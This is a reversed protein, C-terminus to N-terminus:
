GTPPRAARLLAPTADVGTAITEAAWRAALLTYGASAVLSFVPLGPISGLFPRDGQPVAVTFRFTELAPGHVGALHDRAFTELAAAGAGDREVISLRHEPRSRWAIRGRDAYAPSPVSRSPDLALMLGAAPALRVRDALFPVLTPADAALVAVAAEIRAQDALVAVGSGAPEISRAATREHLAAGASEAAAALASVFGPTDIAADGASWYGGWLRRVEFRAELMYHDLFEGSFGDDRLLDEGEVLLGAEDRDVAVAFGGAADYLGAVGVEVALERLRAVHERRLDWVARARERGLREIVAVYHDGTGLPLHGLDRRSAGGGVAAAELLVVRRGRRRLELAAACGALGGGIVCVDTQHTGTLPPRTV